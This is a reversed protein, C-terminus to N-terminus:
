GPSGGTASNIGSAFVHRTLMTRFHRIITLRRNYNFNYFSWCHIFGLLPRSIGINLFSENSLSLYFNLFALVNLGIFFHEIWFWTELPKEARMMNLDEGQQILLRQFRDTTLYVPSGQELWQFRTKVSIIKVLRLFTPLMSFNPLRIQVDSFNQSTASLIYGLLLM